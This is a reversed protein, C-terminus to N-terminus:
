KTEGKSKANAWIYGQMWIIRDDDSLVIDVTKEWEYFEHGAEVLMDHTFARYDQQEKHNM